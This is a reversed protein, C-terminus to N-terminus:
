IELYVARSGESAAETGEGVEEEGAANVAIGSAEISGSDTEVVDGVGAGTEAVLFFTFRPIM